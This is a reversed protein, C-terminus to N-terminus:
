HPGPILAQAPAGAGARPGRHRATDLGHLLAEIVTTARDIAPARGAIIDSYPFGQSIQVIAYALAPTDLDAIFHGRDRELDILKELASALGHRVTSRAGTLIRLAM